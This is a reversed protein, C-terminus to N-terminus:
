CLNNELVKQINLLDQWTDKKKSVNNQLFTPGFTAISNIPNYLYSNSYEFFQGRAKLLSNNINTLNNLSYNGMFVILKPQMLYIFKEIVPKCLLFEEKIPIRNGALRWFFSNLFCCDNGSLNIAKLMKEMMEGSQGSFVKGEEDDIENPFDNIILLNSKTNGDYIITNNALKKINNYGNFNEVINRIDEIDQLSDCINKIENFYDNPLISAQKISKQKEVLLNISNEFNGSSKKINIIENSKKEELTNNINSNFFDNIGNARFWELLIILNESMKKIIKNIKIYKYLRIFVDSIICLVNYSFFYIAIFFM